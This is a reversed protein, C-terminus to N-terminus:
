FDEANIITLSNLTSPIIDYSYPIFFALNLEGSRAWQLEQNIGKIKAGYDGNLSNTILNVESVILKIVDHRYQNPNIVSISTDDTAQFESRGDGKIEDVFSELKTLLGFASTVNDPIETKLLITAQSTDARPGFSVNAGFVDKTLPGVIGNDDVISLQIDTNAKAAELIKDFTKNMERKRLRADRTDNILRAELLLFDGRKELFVGPNNDNNVRTGTVIIEDLQALVPSATTLMLISATIFRILYKM